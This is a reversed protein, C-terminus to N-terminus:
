AFLALINHCIVLPFSVKLCHLMLCTFATSCTKGGFACGGHSKEVELVATAILGAWNICM